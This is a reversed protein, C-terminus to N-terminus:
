QQKWTEGHWTWTVNLFTDRERAGGFLLTKDRIPDYVFTHGWRVGPIEEPQQTTM